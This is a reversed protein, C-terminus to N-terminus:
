WSSIKLTGYKFSHYTANLKKTSYGVTGEGTKNANIYIPILIHHPPCFSGLWHVIQGLSKYM